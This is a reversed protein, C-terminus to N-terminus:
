PRSSFEPIEESFTLIVNESLIHPNDRMPLRKVRTVNQDALAVLLEDEHDSTPVGFIIGNRIAAASNPLSAKIRRGAIESVNLLSSQQAKNIPTIDGGQLVIERNAM